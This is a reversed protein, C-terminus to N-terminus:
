LLHYFALAHVAARFLEQQNHLARAQICTELCEPAHLPQHQLSSTFTSQPMMRQAAAHSKEFVKCAICGRALSHLANATAHGHRGDRLKSPQVRNPKHQHLGGAQSKSHRLKYADGNGM